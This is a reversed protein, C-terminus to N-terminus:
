RRTVAKKLEQVPEEPIKPIQFNKKDTASYVKEKVAEYVKQPTLTDKMEQLQVRTIVGLMLFPHLFYFILNM